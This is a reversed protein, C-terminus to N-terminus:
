LLFKKALKVAKAVSGGYIPKTGELLKVESNSLNYVVVITEVGNGAGHIKIVESILKDHYNEYFITIINIGARKTLKKAISDINDLMEAKCILIAFRNGSNVMVGEGENIYGNQMLTQTINNVANEGKGHSSVYTKNPIDTKSIISINSTEDGLKMIDRWNKMILAIGVGLLIIIIVFAAILFSFHISKNLLSMAITLLMIIFAAITLAKLTKIIPMQTPKM